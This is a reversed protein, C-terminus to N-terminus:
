CVLKVQKQLHYARQKSGSARKKREDPVLLTTLTQNKRWASVVKVM